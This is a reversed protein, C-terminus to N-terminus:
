SQSTKVLGDATRRAIERARAVPFRSRSRRRRVAATPGAVAAASARSPSRASSMGVSPSSRWSARAAPKSSERPCARERGAPSRRGRDGGRCAGRARTPQRRPAPTVFWEETSGAATAPRRRRWRRLGRPMARRRPANPPADGKAFPRHDDDTRRGGGGGALGADVRGEHAVLAVGSDSTAASTAARPRRRPWSSITAPTQRRPLHQGPALRGADGVFWGGRGGRLRSPELSRAIRQFGFGVRGLGARPGAHREACGLHSGAGHGGSGLVGQRLDRRHHEGAADPQRGAAAAGGRERGSRAPRSRCGLNRKRDCVGEASRRLAGFQSKLEAGYVRVESNAGGGEAAEGLQVERQAARHMRGLLAAARATDVASTAGGAGNRQPRPTKRM